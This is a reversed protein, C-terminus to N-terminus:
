LIIEPCIINGELNNAHNTKQKELNKLHVKTIRHKSLSGYLINRDCVDCHRPQLMRKNISEGNKEYYTKNYDKKTKISKHKVLVEAPTKESVKKFSTKDPMPADSKIYM